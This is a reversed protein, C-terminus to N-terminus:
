TQAGASQYAGDAAGIGDGAGSEVIVQHGEEVLTEVAEPTISVRRDGSGREGLVTIRM